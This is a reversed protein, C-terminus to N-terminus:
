MVQFGQPVFNNSVRFDSGCSPLIAEGEEQAIRVEYAETDARLHVRWTDDEQVANVLSLANVKHYGERERLFSAAAQVPSPFGVHGRYYDLSHLRDECHAEVLPDAEDPELWGYQSGHPLVLLTPAFRHGGLHTTQWTENSTVKSMAEYMERGWKACCADRQGNTCTLFLLQDHEDLISPRKTIEDLDIDLLEGYKKITTRYTKTPHVTCSLFINIRGSIDFKGTYRRIFQVRRNDKRSEWELIHNKLNKSLESDSLANSGWPTPKEILLWMSSETASGSISVGSSRAIQSCFGKKNM